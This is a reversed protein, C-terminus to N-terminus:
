QGPVTQWNGLVDPMTVDLPDYLRNPNPTQGGSCPDFRYVEVGNLYLEHWPFGDHHGEGPVIVIRWEMPELQGDACLQRFQFIIHVDFSPDAAQCPNNGILDMVVQVESSSM